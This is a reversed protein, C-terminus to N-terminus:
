PKKRRRVIRLSSSQMLLHMKERSQNDSEVTGPVMDKGQAEEGRGCSVLLVGMVLFLLFLFNKKM